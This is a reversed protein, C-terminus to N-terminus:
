VKDWKTNYKELINDNKILFYMRKKQGDYGKVYTSTKPLMVHSLKMIMRCTVLLTNVTKEGIALRNSLLINDVDVDKKFFLNKYRQFKHKEIGFDAFMIIQKDM